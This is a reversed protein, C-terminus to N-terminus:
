SPAVPAPAEVRPRRRALLLNVMVGASLFVFGAALLLIGWGLSTSPIWSGHKFAALVAGAGYGTGQIELRRFAFGLGISGAAFGGYWFGTGPLDRWLMWAGLAFVAVSAAVPVWRRLLPFLLWCGVALWLGAVIGGYALFTEGPRISVLTAAVALASVFLCRFDRHRIAGALLAVGLAAPWLAGPLPLPEVGGMAAVYAGPFLCVTALLFLRLGKGEVLYILVSGTVLAMAALPWLGTSGDSLGAAWLTSGAGAWALFEATRPRSTALRAAASAAIALIYPAAQAWTLTLTAIFSWVLGHAIFLIAILIPAVRVIRRLRFEQDDAM